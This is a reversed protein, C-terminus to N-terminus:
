PKGSGAVGHIVRHGDGINRALIEQQIDMIKIQSNQKVTM